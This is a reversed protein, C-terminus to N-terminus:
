KPMFFCICLFHCTRLVLVSNNGLFPRANLDLYETAFYESVNKTRQKKMKKRIFLKDNFHDCTFIYYIFTPRRSLVPSIVIPFLM